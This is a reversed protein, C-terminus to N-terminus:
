RSAHRAPAQAPPAGPKDPSDKLQERMKRIAEEARAKNRALDEMHSNYELERAQKREEAQRIIEDEKALAAEHRATAKEELATTSALQRQM